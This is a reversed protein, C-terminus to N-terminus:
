QGTKCAHNDDQEKPSGGRQYDQSKECLADLWSGLEPVVLALKLNPQWAVPAARGERRGRDRHNERQKMTPWERWM